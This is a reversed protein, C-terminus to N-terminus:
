EGYYIWLVANCKAHVAGITLGTVHDHHLHVRSHFFTKPFIVGELSMRRIHLAPGKNLSRKCHWCMGGQMEIYRNRIDAKEMPSLKDYKTPLKTVKERIDGLKIKM